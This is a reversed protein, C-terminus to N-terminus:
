EMVLFDCIKIRIISCDDIGLFWPVLVLGGAPERMYAQNHPLLRIVHEESREESHKMNCQASEGEGTQLQM